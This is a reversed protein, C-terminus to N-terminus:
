QGIIVDEALIPCGGSDLTAAADQVTMKFLRAVYVILRKRQGADLASVDLSYFMGTKADPADPPQVLAVQNTGFVAYWAWYRSSAPSLTATIDPM